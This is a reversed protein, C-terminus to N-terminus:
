SEERQRALEREVSRQFAAGVKSLEELSKVLRGNVSDKPYRGEDDRAGAEVGTLIEIADDVTSIPLIKFKGSECARAIEAKVMLNRVNTAPILVGHTGDLGRSECLDFFGEIKENVGGIAQARGQQDVSGTMAFSQLIPIEAISSILACLEAMSASDGEIGGYSQEFVLSASFALPVKKGFRTAFFNSVILVGKSHLPGGLEVEREIDMIGKSGVRATATVRSPRGFLFGGVSIVSLANVQGVTSGATEIRLTEELILQKSRDRIRDHRRIWAALAQEVDPAEITPCERRRAFYAAEQVLDSLDRVNTSLRHADGSQRAAHEILRAIASRDLPPSGTTASVGAILRALETTSGETRPVDDEFDAVVKFLDAVESDYHALLYYLFRDGVVAVKVDLPIPEPDMTQSTSLGLMVGLGEIRVQHAFLSRKLVSWAGPEVLVKRLDIILYGGNAQHLAGPKILTFDSVLNGLHARHEIRGVLRDVRPLDEYQVPAGSLGARDVIVNVRYREGGRGDGPGKEDKKRFDGANEVVDKQVRDLYACVDPLDCWKSLLAELTSEVVSHTVERELNRLQERADQAWKPAQRLKTRLDAQLEKIAVEIEKKRDDALKEFEDPGIVQSDQIPAFVVGNPMQLMAIGRAEAREQTEKFVSAQHEELQAEIERVRSRYEDSEFASPIAAELDEVLRKMDSALQKGRGAPLSLARPTRPDEFDHVYCWDPPTPAKAAAAEFIGRVLGHKGAGSEGVVFLNFGDRRMSVAFEIAEVARAQGLPRHIPDLEGTHEAPISQPECRFRLQEPRLPEFIRRAM